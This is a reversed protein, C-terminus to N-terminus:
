SKMKRLLTHITSLYFYFMWSLWIADYNTKQQKNHHRIGFNNAINFLDSEDKKDLHKKVDPKILELVDALDRVAQRRDDLSARHRRYQLVSSNVRSIISENDTPIDADFITEFGHEPKHVIEGEHSLEYKGKYLNLLNNVKILFESQGEIKNFTEWHMGCDNYDHYIGDIPKSVCQYLFEIMDFLDDESYQSVTNHGIPYLNNKRIKLIIELQIDGIIGSIIGNDVCEYGFAEAFYGKNELDNYFRIFLNLFDSLEFGDSNNNISNRLSYFTHNNM